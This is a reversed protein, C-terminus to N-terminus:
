RELILRGRGGRELDYVGDVRVAVTDLHSLQLSCRGLRCCGEM